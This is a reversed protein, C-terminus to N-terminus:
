QQCKLSLLLSLSPLLTIDLLLNIRKSNNLQQTQYTPLDSSRLDESNLTGIIM